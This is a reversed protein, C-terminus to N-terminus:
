LHWNRRPFNRPPMQCFTSALNKGATCSANCTWHRINQPLSFAILPDTHVQNCVEALLLLRVFMHVHNMCTYLESSLDLTGGDESFAISPWQGGTVNCNNSAAVMRVASESFVSPCSRGAVPSRNLFSPFKSAAKQWAWGDTQGDTRGRGDGYPRKETETRGRPM